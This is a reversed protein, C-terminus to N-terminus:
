TKWKTNRVKQMYRESNIKKFPLFIQPSAKKICFPFQMVETVLKILIEWVGKVREGFVVNLVFQDTSRM